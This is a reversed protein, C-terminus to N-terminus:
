RPYGERCLGMDACDKRYYLLPFTQSDRISLLVLTTLRKEDRRIFRTDVGEGAFTKILYEGMQEKGVRSVMAVRLGLRSTGIAINAPCGGVYKNFSLTDELGGGLQNSYLDAGCRGISILDYDTEPTRKM